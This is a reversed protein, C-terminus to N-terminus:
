NETKDNGIETNGKVFGACFCVGAFVRQTRDMSDGVNVPGTKVSKNLFKEFGTIINAQLQIDDLTEIYQRVGERMANLLQNQKPTQNAFIM